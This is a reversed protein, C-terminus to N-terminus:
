TNGYDYHISFHRDGFASHNLIDEEGEFVYDNLPVAPGGGSKGGIGARGDEVANNSTAQPAFRRAGFFVVGDQQGRLGPLTELGHANLILV